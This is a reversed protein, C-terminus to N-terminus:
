AAEDAFGPILESALRRAPIRANLQCSIAINSAIVRMPIALAAPIDMQRATRVQAVSRDMDAVTMKQLWKRTYHFVEVQLPEVYPRLMEDLERTSVQEGKQIFGIKEMVPLLNDYDKAIAFRSAM